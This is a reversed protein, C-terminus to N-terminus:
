GIHTENSQCSRLHLAGEFCFFGDRKSLLLRLEEALPGALAVISSGFGIEGRGLPNSALELLRDISGAM